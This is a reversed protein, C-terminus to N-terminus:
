LPYLVTHPQALMMYAGYSIQPLSDHLRVGASSQTGSCVVFLCFLRKLLHSEYSLFVYILCILLSNPYPHKYTFSLLLEKLWVKLSYVPPSSCHGKPGCQCTEPTDEAVM